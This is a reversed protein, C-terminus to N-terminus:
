IAPLTKSQKISAMHRRGYVHSIISLYKSPIKIFVDSRKLSIQKANRDLGKSIFILTCFYSFYESLAVITIWNYMFAKIIKYKHHMYPYIHTHLHVAFIDRGSVHKYQGKDKWSETIRHTHVM